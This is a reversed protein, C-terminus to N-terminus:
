SFAYGEDFEFSDIIRDFYLRDAKFNGETSYFHMTVSGYSSYSKVMLSIITGVGPAINETTVFFIKNKSYFGQKGVKYHRALEGFALTVVDEAGGITEGTKASAVYKQFELDSIRGDTRIQLLMYPYAFPKDGKKQLALDYSPAKAKRGMLYEFRANLAILAEDPVKEWDEPIVFSFHGESSHFVPQAQTAPASHIQLGLLVVGLLLLIVSIKKM